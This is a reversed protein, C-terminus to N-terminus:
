TVVTVDCLKQINYTIFYNNELPIWKDKFTELAKEGNRKRIREIQNEPTTMCFITLGYDANLAPHMCYSGEIIILKKEDVTVSHTIEGCGCDFVGYSFPKDEKLKSIIEDFFRERHFNGGPEGLREERRMDFPLFFSDARIVTGGFVAQIEDALTSKGSACMGDIAIVVRGNALLAEIKEKIIGNM